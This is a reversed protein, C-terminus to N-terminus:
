VAPQEDAPTGLVILDLEDATAEAHDDSPVEGGPPIFYIHTICAHEEHQDARHPM